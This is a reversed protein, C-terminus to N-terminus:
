IKGRTEEEWEEDERERDLDLARQRRHHCSTLLNKITTPPLTGAM